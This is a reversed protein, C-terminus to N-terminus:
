WRCETRKGALRGREVQGDVNGLENKRGNGLGRNKVFSGVVFFPGLVIGNNM